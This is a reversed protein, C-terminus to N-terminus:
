FKLDAAKILWSKYGQEPEARSRTNASINRCIKILFIPQGTL